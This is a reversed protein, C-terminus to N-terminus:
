KSEAQIASVHSHIFKNLKTVEKLTHFINPPTNNLGSANERKQM